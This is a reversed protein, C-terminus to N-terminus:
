RLLLLEQLDSADRSQEAPVSFALLRTWSYKVWKDAMELLYRQQCFLQRLLIPDIYGYCHGHTVEILIKVSPSTSLAEESELISESIDESLPQFFALYKYPDM